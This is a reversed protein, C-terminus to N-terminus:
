VRKSRNRYFFMQFSNRTGVLKNSVRLVEHWTARRQQNPKSPAFVMMRNPMFDIKRRNKLSMKDPVFEIIRGSKTRLKNPMFDKVTVRSNDFIPVFLDSNHLLLYKQYTRLVNAKDSIQLGFETNIDTEPAYFLITFINQIDDTHPSIEYGMRDKIMSLHFFYDDQIRETPLMSCLLSYFHKENKLLFDVFFKINSNKAHLLPRYNRHNIATSIQRNGSEWTSFDTIDVGFREISGYPGRTYDDEWLSMDELEKAMAKYFDDPLLDDVILHDFPEPQVEAKQIKDFFNKITLSQEM